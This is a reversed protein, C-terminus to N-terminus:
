NADRKPGDNPKLHLGRLCGRALVEAIPVDAPALEYDLLATTPVWRVEDHSRLTYEGPALQAEYALLEIERDDYAFRSSAVFDRVEAGVGSEEELERKLCNKPTEGQEIKGGPFEWHGALHGGAQRRALLVLGPRRIIAATVRTPQKSAMTGVRLPTQHCAYCDNLGTQRRNSRPTM